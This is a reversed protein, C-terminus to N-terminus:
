GLVCFLMPIYPLNHINLYMNIKWFDDEAIYAETVKEDAKLLQKIIPAKSARTSLYRAPSSFFGKTLVSESSADKSLNKLDNVIANKNLVGQGAIEELFKQREVDTTRTLQGYVNKFSEAITKPNLLRVGNAGTITAGGFINKSHTTLRRTTASRQAQGKIFLLGQWTEKIGSPLSEVLKSSGQQYRKTYYEALEPTTYMGSIEGFPQVKVNDYKPIQATFGPINDKDHFYIDKGDRYAQNHFNSDEVFQSIKKM